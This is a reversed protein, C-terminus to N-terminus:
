VIFSSRHVIFLASSFLAHLGDAARIQSSIEGFDEGFCLMVGFLYDNGARALRNGDKDAHILPLLNLRDKRSPLLHLIRFVPVLQSSGLRVECPASNNRM